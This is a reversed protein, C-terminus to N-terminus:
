GSPGPPGSVGDFASMSAGLARCLRDLAAAGPVRRGSEYESIRSPSVGVAEALEAQTLGCAARLRALRGAVAAAEPSAPESARPRGRQPQPDTM